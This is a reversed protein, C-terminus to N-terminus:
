VPIRRCGLAAHSIRHYDSRDGGMCKPLTQWDMPGDM